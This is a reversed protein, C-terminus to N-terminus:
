FEEVGKDNIDMKIKKCFTNSLDGRCLPCRKSFTNSEKICKEHFVHFCSTILYNEEFNVSDELCISCKNDSVLKKVILNPIGKMMKKYNKKYGVLEKKEKRHKEFTNNINAIDEEINMHSFRDRLGRVLDRRERNIEEDEPEFPNSFGIDLLRRRLPPRRRFDSRLIRNMMVRNDNEVVNNNSNNNNDDSNDNNDNNNDGNSVENHITMM